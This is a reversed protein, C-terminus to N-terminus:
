LVLPNVMASAHWVQVFAREKVPQGCRGHIHSCEAGRRQVKRRHLRLGPATSLCACVAKIVIWHLESAASKVSVQLMHVARSARQMGVGFAHIAVLKM